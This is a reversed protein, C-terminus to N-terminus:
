RATTGSRGARPVPAPLDFDPVGASLLFMFVNLPGCPSTLLWGAPGAFHWTPFECCGLTFSWCIYPQARSGQELDSDPFSPQKLRVLNM